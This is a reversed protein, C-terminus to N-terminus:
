YGIEFGKNILEGLSIKYSVERIGPPIQSPILKPFLPNNADFRHVEGLLYRSENAIPSNRDFGLKSLRSNFLSRENPAMSVSLENVLDTLTEGLHGQTSQQLRYIRLELAGSFHLQNENAIRVSAVQPLLTKIETAKFGEFVFDQPAGLPGAWAELIEAISIGEEICSRIFSLEGFLGRAKEEGFSGRSKFFRVWDEFAQRQMNLAATEDEVSAVSSVLDECLYAFEHQFEPDKLTILLRWTGGRDLLNFELPGVQQWPEPKSESSSYFVWRGTADIGIYQPLGTALIRQSVGFSGSQAIELWKNHLNIM